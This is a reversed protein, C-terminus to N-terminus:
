RVVEVSSSQRIMAAAYRRASEADKDYAMIKKLPFLVKFAEAHSRGQVGCGLMGM